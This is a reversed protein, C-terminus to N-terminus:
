GEYKNLDKPYNDIKKLKIKFKGFKPASTLFCQKIDKDKLMKSVFHLDGKSKDARIVGFYFSANDPVDELERLDKLAKKKVPKKLDLVVRGATGTAAIGFYLWRSGNSKKLLPSIDEQNNGSDM